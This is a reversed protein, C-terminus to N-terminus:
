RAAHVRNPWAAFIANLEGEPTAQETLRFTGSTQVERAAALNMSLPGSKSPYNSGWAIRSAGFEDVLKKFFSEPTAKGEGVQKFTRPTIKLYINGYPVLAFLPAAAAYPPGDAIEPRAMNDLVLKVKPFQRVIALANPFGESSMQLCVSMGTQAAYDWAPFTSPDDIWSADMAKTSGGTFLRLGSLGRQQWHKLKEVADPAGMDVSCVGTLRNKHKAISDALYSNDYGYCTATQVIASKDVGAEDMAAIMDEITAPRERSCDSQKGFLPARPYGVDDRSVIHPHIDIVRTAM